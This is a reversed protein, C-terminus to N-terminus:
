RIAEGFYGCRDTRPGPQNISDGEVEVMRTETRTTFDVFDQPGAAKTRSIEAGQFDAIYTASGAYGTDRVMTYGAGVNFEGVTRNSGYERISVTQPMSSRIALVNDGYTVSVGNSTLNDGSVQSGWPTTENTVNYEYVETVEVEEEVERGDAYSEVSCHEGLNLVQAETLPQYQFRDCGHAYFTLTSPDVMEGEHQVLPGLDRECIMDQAIAPACMSLSIASMMMFTRIKM